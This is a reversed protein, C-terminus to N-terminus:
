PIVKVPPPTPPNPITNDMIAIYVSNDAFNLERDLKEVDTYSKLIDFEVTLEGFRIKRCHEKNPEFKIKNLKSSFDFRYYGTYRIDNNILPVKLFREKTMRTFDFKISNLDIKKAEASKLRGIIISDEKPYFSEDGRTQIFYVNKIEPYSALMSTDSVSTLTIIIQPLDKLNFSGNDQADVYYKQVAQQASAGPRDSMSLLQIFAKAVEENKRKLGEEADDRDVIVLLLELIVALYLIFYIKGGGHSAM